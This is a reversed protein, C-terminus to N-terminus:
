KDLSKNEKESSKTKTSLKNEMILYRLLIIMRIQHFIMYTLCM